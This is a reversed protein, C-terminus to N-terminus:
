VKQWQQTTPSGMQLGVFFVQYRHKWMIFAGLLCVIAQALNLVMQLLYYKMLTSTVATCDTVEAYTFTRAIPDEPELTCICDQNTERCIFGNTLSYHHGQFAIVIISIVLGVSCLIFYMLKIIFQTYTREDPLYTIFYLVFGLVSVICLIIGAWHPTERALLSPSITTMLFAVVTIAIGLLLQLLAILLPFRCGCCTHSGEAGSVRRDPKAKNQGGGSGAPSKESGM